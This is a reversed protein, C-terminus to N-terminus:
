AHSGKSGKIVDYVRAKRIRENSIVHFIRPTNKSTNFFGAIVMDNTEQMRSNEKM